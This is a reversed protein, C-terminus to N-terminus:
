QKIIKGRKLMQGNTTVEFTYLGNTLQGTFLTTFNEFQQLLVKRGTIDFLIIESKGIIDSSINLKDICPNPFATVHPNAILNDLGTICPNNAESAQFLRVDDLVLETCYFTINSCIHGWNTFKITQSSSTARFKIVFRRGIGTSIPTAPDRLFIKGFGIDVVFLGDLINTSTGEGGTWFELLYNSGTILGHVTQQLSVGTDAAYGPYPSFPYGSPIGM